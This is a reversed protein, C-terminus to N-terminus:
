TSSPSNEVIKTIYIGTREKDNPYAYIFCEVLVEQKYNLSPFNNYLNEQIWSHNNLSENYDMYIDWNQTNANFKYIELIDVFTTIKLDYFRVPNIFSNIVVLPQVSKVDSHFYPNIPSRNQIPKTGNGGLLLKCRLEILNLNPFNMLLVEKYNIFKNYRLKISYLTLNEFIHESLQKLTAGLLTYQFVRAGFTDHIM